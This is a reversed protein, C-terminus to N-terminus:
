QGNKWFRVMERQEPTEPSTVHRDPTLRRLDHIMTLVDQGSAYGHRALYCGVVTGTRGIGGRCHVYVPRNGGISRDICDLSLIMLERPPVELDKIGYRYFSCEIGRNDAIAKLRPAYPVFPRGSLNVEWPEMLDIFTRLGHDLLAKLRKDAEVPDESGPYCGAQFRGPIVWYSHPFPVDLIM